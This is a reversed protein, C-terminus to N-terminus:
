YCLCCQLLTCSVFGSPIRCAGTIVAYVIISSNVATTMATHIYMYFFNFLFAEREREIEILPKYQKILM